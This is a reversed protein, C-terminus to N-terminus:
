NNLKLETLWAAPTCLMSALLLKIFGSFIIYLNLTFMSYLTIVIFALLGCCLIFGLTNLIFITAREVLSDFKDEINKM